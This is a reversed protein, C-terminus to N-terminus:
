YRAILHFTLYGAYEEGGPIVGDLGDYGIATGEKQFLHLSRVSSDMMLDYCQEDDGLHTYYKASGEVYQLVFERGDKSYFGTSDWVRYPEANASYIVGSVQLETGADQPLIVYARTDTSVLGLSADANNHVYMRVVYEQGDEAETYDTWYNKSADGTYKSASVFFREDGIEDYNDVASNFTVFDAPASISCLTRDNPGYGGENVEKKQHMLYWTGAGIGILLILLLVLRGRNKRLFAQRKSSHLLKVLRDMSADFYTTSPEIGEYSQLEDIGEPLEDPWEFGRMLIPIVNKNHKLAHAAERYVWDGPNSCRDLGGPPLILLFDTCEEIKELLQENFKGSRLSEVDLFVIYGARELEQKIQLAM